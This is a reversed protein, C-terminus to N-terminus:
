YLDASEWPGGSVCYGGDDMIVYSSTSVEGYSYGTVSHWTDGTTEWSSSGNTAYRTIEGVGANDVFYM